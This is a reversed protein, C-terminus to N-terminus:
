QRSKAIKVDKYYHTYSAVIDKQDCFIRMRIAHSIERHNTSPAFVLSSFYNDRKLASPSYIVLREMGNKDSELGLVCDIMKLRKHGDWNLLWRMLKM